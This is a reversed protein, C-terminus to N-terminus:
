NHTHIIKSNFSSIQEEVEDEIIIIIQYLVTLNLVNWKGDSDVPDDGCFFEHVFDSLAPGNCDGFLDHGERFLTNLARTADRANSM